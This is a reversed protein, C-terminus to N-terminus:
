PCRDHRLSRPSGDPPQSATPDNPYAPLDEGQAFGFLVERFNRKYGAHHPAAVDPTSFLVHSHELRSEVRLGFILGQFFAPTCTCVCIWLSRAIRTNTHKNNKNQKKQELDPAVMAAGSAGKGGARLTWVSQFTCSSPLYSPATNARGRPAAPLPLGFVSAYNTIFEMARKNAALSYKNWPTKGVNAHM